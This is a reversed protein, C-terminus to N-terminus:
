PTPSADLKATSEAPRRAPAPQVEFQAPRVARLAPVEYPAGLPWLGGGGAQGALGDLIRDDLHHELVDALRDAQARRHAAFHTGSPVWAKGARAAVQGLFCDRFGDADFLGHLSTGLIRGERASSGEPGEGPAPGDLELWPETGSTRGHHIQYGEVPQGLGRGRRQRTVKDRAFTTGAALLGLGDVPETGSDEIGDTIRRGLMQYGACIGLVSVEGRSARETVEAALGSARLWALDALTAKSGPLIVLDPAGLARPGSVMRVSVGPEIALADFDTFNAIRPFRVVAVDIVERSGRDPFRWDPESEEPSLWPRPQRLALSDEADMGLWELWPLVGLTPLGCLRELQAPGDGLLAPDGRLRNIVFGIVWRRQDPPLLSVTGYLSAFVGGRDIDAVIVAPIRASAAVRLNAIDLPALNIEAPSGAGECIVVEFRSRLDELAETVTGFLGGKSRQYTAADLTRWPRGLVVVQATRDDNPKLLVPNMAVEPEVGAAMAQAATSRGIEHGASTVFSNLAMNQGKFPAVRVGRRRLARCLGTVLTTKGADSGAGCVM